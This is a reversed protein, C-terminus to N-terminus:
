PAADATVFEEGVVLRREGGRPRNLFWRLIEFVMCQIRHENDGVKWSWVPQGADWQRLLRRATIM